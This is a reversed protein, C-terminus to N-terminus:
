ASTRTSPRMAAQCISSRSQRLHKQPRQPAALPGPYGLGDWGANRGDPGLVGYHHALTRIRLPRLEPARALREREQLPLAAFGAEELMAIAAQEDRTLTPALLRPVGRSNAGAVLTECFSALTM